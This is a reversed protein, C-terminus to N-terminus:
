CFPSSPFPCLNASPAQDLNDSFFFTPLRKCHISFTSRVHPDSPSSKKKPPPSSHPSLPVPLEFSLYSLFFFTPSLFLSVFCCLISRHKIPSRVEDSHKTQPPFPPSSPLQHIPKPVSHTQLSRPSPDVTSHRLHIYKKSPSKWSM